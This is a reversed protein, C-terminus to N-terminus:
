GPPTLSRRARGITPGPQNEPVDADRARESWWRGYTVALPNATMGHAVVSVAVTWTIVTVITPLGDIGPDEQLTLLLFLVSALGRPGFWGYLLVTPGRTRSGVLAIATPLMRVVTLSLVAYVAISWGLDDLQPGLLTVGFLFFVGQTLLEGLDESLEFAPGVHGFRTGFALGAVYCSLLGSGGLADAVVYAIAPVMLVAITRWVHSLQQRENARGLVFGAGVGAVIGVLLGFGIEEALAEILGTRETVGLALDVAVLYFPVALGDNLGSEVGLTQRVAEPVVPNTVVAQGLAADTPALMVAMLAVSWFALDGFVLLGAVTGAVMALPLGALLLRAPIPYEHRLKRTRVRSADNFLVLALTAQVLTQATESGVAPDIWGLVDPGVLLGAGAFVMPTTVVSASLRKAALAYAFSLLAFLALAGSTAAESAFM